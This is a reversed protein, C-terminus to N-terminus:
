IRKLLPLMARSRDSDGAFSFSFSFFCALLPRSRSLLRRPDTELLLSLLPLLEDLLVEPDLDLEDLEEDDLEDEEELELLPESLRLRLFLADRDLLLLTVALGLTLFSDFSRARDLSLVRRLESRSPASFALLFVGSLALSLPLDRDAERRLLFRSREGM